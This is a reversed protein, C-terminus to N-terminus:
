IDVLTALKDRLFAAMEILTEDDIELVECSDLVDRPSVFMPAEKYAVSEVAAEGGVWSVVYQVEPGAPQGDASGTVKIGDVKLAQASENWIATGENAPAFATLEPVNTFFLITEDANDASPSAEFYAGPIYMAEESLSLDGFYQEPMWQGTEGDGARFWIDGNGAAVAASNVLLDDSDRVVSFVFCNRGDIEELKYFAATVGEPYCAAAKTRAEEESLLEIEQSSADVPDTGKDKCGALLILFACLVCAICLVRKM